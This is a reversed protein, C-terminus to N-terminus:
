ACEMEMDDMDTETACLDDLAAEECDTVDPLARILASVGPIGQDYQHLVEVCHMSFLKDKQALSHLLLVALRLCRVTRKQPATRLAAGARRVTLWQRHLVVTLARVAEVGCLCDSGTIPPGPTQTGLKALLWVVEQELQLWQTESAAKDPKSTIYSYLLLLLCRESHSCFQQVLTDSDAIQSLLEVALLVCPLPTQPSLCPPLVPLVCQLRPLYDSSANEALKVLVKLCKSLVSAQLSGAPMSSFALLHLLIKLLPHQGPPDAPGRPGSDMDACSLRHVWSGNGEGMGSLLLCVVARSHGVLHHLISLSAVCLGEVNCVSDELSAEGGGSSRACAAHTPSGGPVGSRRAAAVDQLAQCHLALFFHVLPLLYIAGPLQCLPFARQGQEALNDEPSDENRAILNLGAFALNQAERLVSPSFSGTPVGPTRLGSIRALTSSLGPPQLFTGSPTESCSSLLYCLGLSSGPVLPQKLLLNILISGQRNVSKYRQEIQCQHPVSMNANFSEKTPFPTRGFQPSCAEPKIVVSPNKRPSVHSISPSVLKNARESSQLKTRLENMEADKFQLESQLSQLKKSFEKEKESLVQSKEQELLFQAKRQEELVLETQFLSDRLIKIEGNKLLVEEEMAKLKKELEKYQTQLVEFQCNDNVPTNERNKGATSKSMEDFRYVKYVNSMDRTEAGCQSLAQSALVDLEELDDATLEGHEGFPDETDPGPAPSCGRARKSPPHENEPQTGLFSASSGGRRGSGPMSRGAM